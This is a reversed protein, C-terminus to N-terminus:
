RYKQLFEFIGFNIILMCVSCLFIQFWLRTWCRFAAVTAFITLLLHIILSIKSSTFIYSLLILTVTMFFVLVNHIQHINQGLNQAYTYVTKKGERADAVLDKADKFLSFLAFGGFAVLATLIIRFNPQKAPGAMVGTLYTLGGWLGEIKMSGLLTVRANFFEFHYLVSLSYCALGLLGFRFGSFLVMVYFMVVYVNAIGHHHLARAPINERLDNHAIVIVGSALTVFCALIISVGEAQSQVCALLTLLLFPLFHWIRRVYKEISQTACADAFWAVGVQAASIMYLVQRLRTTGAEELQSMTRVQGLAAYSMMWPIALSYILFALYGLIFGYVASITKGTVGKAYAAVLLFTLWITVAEGLPYHRAPNYGLWPFEDVRHILSYGYFVHHTGDSQFLFDLVPPLIGLLTAFTVPQLSERYRIGPIASLLASYIVPLSAYFPIYALIDSGTATVGFLLFELTGRLIGVFISFSVLTRADFSIRRQRIFWFRYFTM